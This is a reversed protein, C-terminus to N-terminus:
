SHKYSTNKECILIIHSGDNTTTAFLYTKGGDSLKLRQRLQAATLPFNRVTINAQKIDKLSNKLQKKNMTTTGLVHMKRGPFDDMYNHSVFLHSNPSLAKMQFRKALTSFCGAKMIAANPEYLWEGQLAEDTSSIIPTPEATQEIKENTIFIDNDNACFIQMPKDDQQALLVVLMEKCENASAVIHIERVVNGASENLARQTEHWDLMPSLKIMVIDAMRLMRPLIPLIDPTSDSIAFTRGGHSDRRAPDIFLLHLHPLKDLLAMSDGEWTEVGNIKLAEFNQRACECLTHQREIYISREFMPAMFSFDVGMGGTLDAFTAEGDHKVAKTWKHAVDAKYRATEESSCQELALHPPFTIGDCEAWSPLKTRAKQWGAIQEIAFAMDVDPHKRAQLALANVDDNRHEMIFIRTSNTM